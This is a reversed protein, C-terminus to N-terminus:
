RRASGLAMRRRHVAAINENTVPRGAERLAQEAWRRDNQGMRAVLGNVDLDSRLVTQGSPTQGVLNGVWGRILADDPVQGPHAQAWIQSMERLQVLVRNKRIADQQREARRAASNDERNGTPPAELRTFDFGSARLLPNAISWIREDTVNQARQSLATGRIQGADAAWSRIMTGPAGQSILRQRFGNSAFGEPNAYRMTNYELIMEPSIAGDRPQRNSRARDALQVRYSPSLSAFGPIQSTSTFTDLNDGQALWDDTQRRADDERDARAARAQGHRRRLVTELAQKQRWSYTSNERVAAIQAELDGATDVTSRATGGTVRASRVTAPNVPAGDRRVEYHLHPGTSNGSGAGGRAGGSRAITEGRAVRQGARVAISSLHAYRTELGNGHDVIVLNGYNGRQGAFTVTGSFTTPVETGVAMPRDEGAHNSSASANPRQRPGFGSGRAGPLAAATEDRPRFAPAEDNAAAPAADADPEPVEGGDITQEAWQELVEGTLGNIVADFQDASVADRHQILYDVAVGPDARALAQARGVYFETTQRLRISQAIPGEAGGQWGEFAAREGIAEEVLMLRADAETEDDVDRADETLRRIRADSTARFDTEFEQDAYAQYRDIESASRRNITDELMMRARPSRARQSLDRNATELETELANAADRAGAGRAERLRDSLLRTQEVHELDLRQADQRDYLEEIQDEREAYEGIARGVGKLTPGIGDGYDQAIFKAGTTGERQVQDPQYISVRPM